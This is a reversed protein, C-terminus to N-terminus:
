YIGKKKWKIRPEGREGRGSDKVQQVASAGDLFNAMVVLGVFSRVRRGVFGEVRTSLRDFGSM